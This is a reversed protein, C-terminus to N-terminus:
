PQLEEIVCLGTASASPEFANSILLIGIGHEASSGIEGAQGAARPGVPQDQQGPLGSRHDYRHDARANQRPRRLLLLPLSPRPKATDRRARLPSRGHPPHQRIQEQGAPGPQSIPQQVRKRGYRGRWLYRGTECVARTNSVSNGVFRSVPSGPASSPM